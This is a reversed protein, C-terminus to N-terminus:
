VHKKTSFIPFFQKKGLSIVPDKRHLYIMFFRMGIAGGECVFTRLYRLASESKLIIRSCNLCILSERLPFVVIDSQSASMDAKAINERLSGERKANSSLRL